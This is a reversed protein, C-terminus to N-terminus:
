EILIETKNEISFIGQGNEVNTYVTVPEAFYPNGSASEYAYISRSFFYKDRSISKIKLKIDLQTTDDPGFLLEVNYSSDEFLDDKILSVREGHEIGPTFSETWRERWPEDAWDNSNSNRVFVDLEFYNDENPIDQLSINLADMLYSEMGPRSMPVYSVSLIDLAQPLQQTASITKYGTAEATIKYINGTELPAPLELSYSKIISNIGVQQYIPYGLSDLGLFASYYTTDIQMNLGGILVDNEYFNVTADSVEEPNESSSIALSKSLRATIKTDGAEYFSSLVLQSEHEPIDVDVVQECAVTSLIFIIFIFPFYKM